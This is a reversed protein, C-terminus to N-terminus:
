KQLYVAIDFGGEQFIFDLLGDSNFDGTVIGGEGNSPPGPLNVMKAQQFTGDGNGLLIFFKDENDHSVILDTKGDSRFDGAAFDFEGQAGVEYYVPAQFTGDGNGILIGIQSSNCFALDFKGDGNFDNVLMPPGFACSGSYSVVRLPDQFTGDGNGLLV